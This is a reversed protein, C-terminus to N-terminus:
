RMQTDGSQSDQQSDQNQRAVEQGASAQYKTGSQSTQSTQSAQGTKNAAPPQAVVNYPQGPRARQAASTPSGTTSTIPKAGNQNSGAMQRPQKQNNPKASTHQTSKADDSDTPEPPKAGASAVRALEAYKAADGVQGLQKYMTALNGYPVALSTKPLVGRDVSQQTMTAGNLTLDLARDKEGIQWYTVGMSVLEEGELQPTLLDSVPQPATLLPVAKDYWQAASKHDQKLVAYVAGIQFYLQGVLLESDHVAQRTEAGDALNEIASQGYRLATATENRVLEIRVAHYYAEGLEWKIRRQWLDDDYQQKLANATDQAETVFAAPDKTPKMSALAGLAQRAVLLRLELSGGDNAIAGEALGSARGIWESIAETKGKYEQRSIARAIALHAEILVQKAARREKVNKSTALSDAIEIAKTDFSVAKSAISKEGLTALAAMAHFAQAKVVPATTGRDLVARVERVADDYRGVLELAEAHRLQYASNDPDIELAASAESEAKDAQGTALYIDALLWHAQSMEPDLKLALELDRINQEYPGHLRNEARLAFANADLPQIVVHTVKPAPSINAGANSEDVPAFMFLVGREPYAEGLAIGKEDSVQVSDIKDLSLQKALRKTPLTGQLEIKIATVKGATILAEVSKFPETHYTLVTTDGNTSTDAAAGWAAALDKKTSTGPQIGNFKAPEAAIGERYAAGLDATATDDSKDSDREAKLAAKKDNGAVKALANAFQKADDSKVNTPESKAKAHESPESIEDSKLSTLDALEPTHESIQSIPQLSDDGDEDPIAAPQQANDAARSAILVSTDGGTDASDDSSAAPESDAACAERITGAGCLGLIVALIIARNAREIAASLLSRRCDALQLQSCM